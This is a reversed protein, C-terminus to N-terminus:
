KLVVNPPAIDRHQGSHAFSLGIHLCDTGQVSRGSWNAADSESRCQRFRACNPGQSWASPTRTTVLKTCPLALWYSPAVSLLQYCPMLRVSTEPSFTALLKTEGLPRDIRTGRGVRARAIQLCEQPEVGSSKRLAQLARGSSGRAILESFRQFRFCSSSHGSCRPRPSQMRKRERHEPGAPTVNTRSRLARTQFDYSYM